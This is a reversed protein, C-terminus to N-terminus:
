YWYLNIHKHGLDYAYLDTNTSIAYTTGYKKKTVYVVQKGDTSWVYDEAGGFPKTPCGYPENQLLDIKDTPNAHWDLRYFLDKAFHAM